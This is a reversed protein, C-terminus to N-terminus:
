VVLSSVYVHKINLLNLSLTFLCLGVDKRLDYSFVTAQLAHQALNMGQGSDERYSRQIWSNNNNNNNNNHNPAASEEHKKWLKYCPTVMITKFSSSMVSLMIAARNSTHIHVIAYLNDVHVIKKEM